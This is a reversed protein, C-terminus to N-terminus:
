TYVGAYAERRGIHVGQIHRGTYWATYPCIGGQTGHQIRVYAERSHRGIHTVTTYLRGLLRPSLSYCHNIAERPAQSLPFLPSYLRGLLRSSLSYRHSSLRRLLRPSLSYRQSYLRGVVRHPPIGVRTYAGQVYGPICGQVDGPYVV